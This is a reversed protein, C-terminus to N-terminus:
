WGANNYYDKYDPPCYFEIEEIKIGMKFLNEKLLNYAEDYTKAGKFGYYKKESEFTNPKAQAEIPVLEGTENDIENKCEWYAYIGIKKGYWVAYFNYKKRM